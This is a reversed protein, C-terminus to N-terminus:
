RDQISDVPKKKSLKYLPIASAVATTAFGVLLLLAIQRIGFNFVNLNIGFAAPLMTNFGLTLSVVLIVTLLLVISTIIVGENIFIAFIDSKKAGVARLIGIQKKNSSVSLTIYNGLLLISFLGLIVSGIRVFPQMFKFPKSVVNLELYIPNNGVFGRKNGKNFHINSIAIASDKSKIGDVFPAILYEYIEDEFDFSNKYVKDNILFDSPFGDKPIYFGVIVPDEDFSIDPMSYTESGSYYINFNKPDIQVMSNLAKEIRNEVFIRDGNEKAIVSGCEENIINNKLGGIIKKGDTEFSYECSLYCAYSFRWQRESLTNPETDFSFKNANSNYDISVTRGNNLDYYSFIYKNDKCYQKYKELKEVSLMEAKECYAAINKGFYRFEYLSMENFSILNDFFTKSYRCNIKREVLDSGAPWLYKAKDFGILVENDALEKREGKGDLWIINDVYKLSYQNAVGNCIVVNSFGVSLGRGFGTTDVLSNEEIYKDYISQHIFNLSHYGEGFYTSIAMNQYYIEKTPQMNAFTGDADALTDVIGVIQCVELSSDNFGLCMNLCIKKDLFSQIDDIEEPLIEIEQCDKVGALAFQEYNYKTILAENENEPLRGYLKFGMTDFLAQSAPLAGGWKNVYYNLSNSGNLLEEDLIPLSYNGKRIVGQFDLGSLEKIKQLDNSSAYINYDRKDKGEEYTIASSMSIYNNPSKLLAQSTTKSVNFSAIVDAFGFAAFSIFCLLITVALRLRKRSLTKAGMALARKYPLRSKKLGSSPATDGAVSELNNTEADREGQAKVKTEDSIVEGDALEIIRDGYEEAFERDHSVVIVLRDQSLRKLTDFIAKGIESDLAGTPEDAMVIKPNKIIARAIAVRQKQGGSLENPKRDGYGELDVEKLIEELRGTDGKQSQLELALTINEGVTFENLINYEQFVFGIYTNRYSDYDKEKFDKSSKGDIIIEGSDAFDLGGILNLLTSKGSGSKGLVFVMGKDEFSLSVNKLAQVPVGKKPKYTRTLNKLELM